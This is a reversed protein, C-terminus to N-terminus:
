VPVVVVPLTAEHLVRRLASGVILDAVASRRKSGIVILDANLRAAHDLIREAVSGQVTLPTVTLGAAALSASLEQVRRHEDRLRHAIADRTSQPGVDYGVFDPEPAAVHLLVLEGDPLALSRACALVAQSGGSLDVCALVKRV